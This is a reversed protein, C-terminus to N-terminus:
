GYLNPKYHSTDYGNRLDWFIAGSYETELLGGLADALWLGNVLSTTQNSPNYSVSNFETALLQVGSGAPGLYQNILSRYAEARGAWNIPGGYGIANPDTASHLLLNADNENGPDFM